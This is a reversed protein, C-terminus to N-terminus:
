DPAFMQDREGGDGFCFAFVIIQDYEMKVGMSVEAGLVQAFGKGVSRHHAPGPLNQAIAPDPLKPDSASGPIFKVPCFSSMGDQLLMIKGAQRRGQGRNALPR